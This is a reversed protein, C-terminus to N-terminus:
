RMVFSEFPSVAGGSSEPDPMSYISIAMSYVKSNDATLSSANSGDVYAISLPRCALVDAPLNAEAEGMNYIVGSTTSASFGVLIDVTGNVLVPDLFFQNLRNRIAVSSVTVERLTSGGSYLGCFNCQAAATGIKYVGYVQFRGESTIRNGRLNQNNAHSETGVYPMGQIKGSNYKIVMPAVSGAQMTPDATFGNATYGPKFPAYGAGYLLGASDLAGRQLYTPYATTPSASDNYIIVFYAENQQLTVGTFDFRTWRNVVPTAQASLSIVSLATDPRDPDEGDTDPGIRLEARVTPSGTLASCYAYATFNGNTQSEIAYFQLVFADGASMFTYASDLAYGAASGADGGIVLDINNLNHYLGM